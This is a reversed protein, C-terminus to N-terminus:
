NVELAQLSRTKARYLARTVVAAAEQLALIDPGSYTRGARRVGLALYGLEPGNDDARLSVHLAADGKWDGHISQVAGDAGFCIVGASADLATVVERLFRSALRQPDILSYDSELQQVFAGLRKSAAPAEKFRTDVIKQLGSKIPDFAAVAILTSLVTAFDSEQGTVSVFFKQTVLISAAVLGAIIATLPIYVLTRRVIVDIELLRYRLISFGLCVAFLMSCAYKVAGYIIDTFLGAPTLPFDLVYGLLYVSAFLSAGAVVWKIQQRQALEATHRYRFLLSYALSLVFIMQVARPLPDPWSNTDLPSGPAVTSFFVRVLWLLAAGRTWSPVFRGDPFVYWIAVLASGVAIAANIPGQAAPLRSVAWIPIASDIVVAGFLVLALSILVGLLDKSKRWFVIAAVLLWPLIEVIVGGAFFLAQGEDSFGIQHAVERSTFCIAQDAPPAMTCPQSLGIYLAATGVVFVLTGVLSFLVWAARALALQRSYGPHFLRQGAVTM